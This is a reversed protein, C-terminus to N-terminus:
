ADNRGRLVERAQEVVIDHIRPSAKVRDRELARLVAKAAASPVRTAREERALASSVAHFAVQRDRESDSEFLDLALSDLLGMDVLVAGMQPRILRKRIAEVVPPGGAEGGLEALGYAAGERCPRKEGEALERELDARAAEGRIKALAVGAYSEALAGPSLRLIALVTDYGSDHGICGLLHATLWPEAEGAEYARVLRLAQGEDPPAELLQGSAVKFYAHNALAKELAEGPAGVKRSAWV